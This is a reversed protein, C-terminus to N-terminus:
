FLYLPFRRPRFFRHRFDAHDAAAAEVRHAAEAIRAFQTDLGREALRGVFDHDAIKFALPDSKKRTVAAPMANKGAFQVEAGIDVGHLHEADLANDGDAGDA